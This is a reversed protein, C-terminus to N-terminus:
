WKYGGELPWLSAASHCLNINRWAVKVLVIFHDGEVKELINRM